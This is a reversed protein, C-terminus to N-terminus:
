EGGASQQATNLCSWAQVKEMFIRIKQPDKQGRSEVGSSVDVAYPRCTELAHEVNDPTLGGALILPRRSIDALKFAAAREWNFSKGGGGRKDPYATDLLLADVRYALSQGASFAADVPLAKIVKYGAFHTCYDVSEDGHFQLTDLGCFAAIERVVQVEEEVFVGVKAVLPPLSKIVAAAQAPTVKRPSAAFVFGLAHVGASVCMEGEVINRIGCIKVRVPCM